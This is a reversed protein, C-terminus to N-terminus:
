SAASAGLSARNGHCGVASLLSGEQRRRCVHAGWRRGSSSAPDLAQFAVPGLGM